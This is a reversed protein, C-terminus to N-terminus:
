KVFNYFFVQPIRKLAERTTLGPNIHKDLITTIGINLCIVAAVSCVLDRLTRKKM